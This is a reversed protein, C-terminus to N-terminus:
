PRTGSSGFRWPGADPFGDHGLVDPVTKPDHGLARFLQKTIYKGGSRPIGVVLMFRFKEQIPQLTAVDGILLAVFLEYARSIYQKGEDAETLRETRELLDPTPTRRGLMKVREQGYEAWSMGDFPENSTWKEVFDIFESSPPFVDDTFTIRVSM